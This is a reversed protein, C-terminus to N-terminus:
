AAPSPGATTRRSTSRSGPPASSPTSTPSSRPSAPPPVSSSGPTGTWRATPRAARPGRTPTGSSRPSGTAYPTQYGKEVQGKSALKVSGVTVPSGGTDFRRPGEATAVVGAENLRRQLTEEFDLMSDNYPVEVQLIFLTPTRAIITADM